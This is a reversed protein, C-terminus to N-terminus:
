IANSYNGFIKTTSGHAVYYPRYRGYVPNTTYTFDGAYPTGSGEGSFVYIRSLGNITRSDNTTNFAQYFPSGSLQTTLGVNSYVRFEYGWESYDGTPTMNSQNNWGYRIYSNVGSTFRQFTPNVPTNATHAPNIYTTVSGTVATGQTGNGSTGSWPTARFYYTTNALLPGVPSKTGATTFTGISTGYSTSSGYELVVSGTGSPLTITVGFNNYGRVGTASTTPLNATWYAYLTVDATPTYSGTLASTGTTSTVWGSFNPKGSPATMSGVAPLSISGGSTTQRLATPVTGSGGNVDFSVLYLPLWRAYLTVNATGMTFTASGTAARATGSGDSATNWGNFVFNTRTLTGSNSKVTVTAGNSYTLADTPVSGGTNGNGDYTVTYTLATWKAYLTVDSTLTIAASAAYNTGTGDSQTNYGNFTFGTRTPTNASVTTVWGDWPDTGSTSTPLSGVTDTTNKNYSLTRTGDVYFAAGDSWNSLTTSPAISSSTTTTASSRIYAYWRGITLPGTADLIPSTTGSGDITVLVGPATASSYWYIQYAPGSNTVATFPVSLRRQGATFAGVASITPTGITPPVKVNSVTVSASNTTYSPTTEIYASYSGATDYVKTNTYTQNATGSSLTIWGSDTAPSTGYVIRYSHPYSSLSAPYPNFTGSFTVTGGPAITSPSASISPDTTPDIDWYDNTQTTSMNNPYQWYLRTGSSNVVSIEYQFSWRSLGGGYTSGNFTEDITFQDYITATTGSVSVSSITGVNYYNSTYSLWASGAALATTPDDPNYYLGTQNNLVRYRVRFTTATNVGNVTWNLKTTTATVLNGRANKGSRDNSDTFSVGTITLAAGIPGGTPYSGMMYNDTYGYHETYSSRGTIEAVIYYGIDSSTPTYYSTGLRQTSTPTGTTTATITEEKILTGGANTDSSRWWRVYSLAPDIKNYYYNEIDYNLVLQTGVQEAEAWEMNTLAPYSKILKKPSSVPNIFDDGTGNNVQVEYFLYKGDLATRNATTVGGASSFRDDFVLTSRVTSDLSDAYSFRRATISTYNSYSGDKGFLDANLFQPSTAVSGDYITGTGSTNASRITPGTIQVPLNAENFFRKWLTPGTKIYGQKIREWITPGTKIYAAATNKWTTPGTKIYM